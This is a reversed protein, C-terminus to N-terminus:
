AVFATLTVCDVAVPTRLGAVQRGIAGGGRHDAARSRGLHSCCEGEIATTREIRISVRQSVIPADFPRIVTGRLDAMGEVIHAIDGNLQHDVVPL